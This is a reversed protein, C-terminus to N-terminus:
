GFLLEAAGYTSGRRRLFIPWGNTQLTQGM